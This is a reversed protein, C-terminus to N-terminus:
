QRQAASRRRRTMASHTSESSLAPAPLPTFGRDDNRIGDLFYTLYRQYVEPAVDRTSDMIPAMASQIFTVDTPEFDERVVGADKARGVLEVILPAIRLRVDNIRADGLTPDDLIQHLGRDGFQMALARKLYDTLATWPDPEELAERAVTEVAQLREEFLTDIIEEKNAFRRYATGVGVGAHHAIDNLTVGLGKVAFLERAADLLRDRNLSADKRLPRSSQAKTM